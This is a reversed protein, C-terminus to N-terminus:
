TKTDLNWLFKNPDFATKLKNLLYVTRIVKRAAIVLREPMKRGQQILQENVKKGLRSNLLGRGACTIAYRLIRDGRKTLIRKGRKKGSDAVKLDLGVFARIADPSEFEKSNFLFTFCCASLPGVGAAGLNRKYGEADVTQALAIAEKQCTKALEDLEQIANAAQSASGGEWIQALRSRMQVAHFWHTIAEKLKRLDQSLPKWPRLEECHKTVYSYLVEADIRDNKARFSRSERYHKLDRPNVLYVTRGQQYALDAVQMHYTSTPELAICADPHKQLLGRIEKLRNATATVQVGDFNVLEAKAVDIALLKM